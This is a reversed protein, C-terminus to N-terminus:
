RHHQAPQQDQGAQDGHDLQQDSALGIARVGALACALDQEGSAGSVGVAGVM